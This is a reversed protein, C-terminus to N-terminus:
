QRINTLFRDVADSMDTSMQSLENASDFLQHASSSTETATRSVGCITSSIESAASALESISDSIEGTARRQNEVSSAITRSRETLHTIRGGVEKIARCVENAQRRMANIQAEIDGTAKSTQKALQKVESAVVAFGKGRDGARVAEITANLALLNTQDAVESILKVVGGISSSLTSLKEMMQITKTSNANAEEAENYSEEVLYTITEISTQFERTVNAVSSISVSTEESASAVILSQDTTEKAISALSEATARMDTSSEAVSHVVGKIVLEFEDALALRSTKADDLAQATVQMADMAKNILIAADRFAGPMGKLLVRRFYRGNAAYTLAAASERVFADSVDLVRNVNRKLIELEPTPAEGTIRQNYDGRSVSECVSTADRVWSRYAANENELAAIRTELQTTHNEISTM